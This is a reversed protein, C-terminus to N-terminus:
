EVDGELPNFIPKQPAYFTAIEYVGVLTRGVARVIGYPLGLLLSTVPDRRIDQSMNVPTVMIESWGWAANTLGRGFKETTEREFNVRNLDKQDPPYSYLGAFVFFTAILFFASFSHRKMM